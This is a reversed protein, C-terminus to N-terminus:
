QQVGDVTIEYLKHRENNPIGELELRFLHNAKSRPAIYDDLSQYVAGTTDKLDILM